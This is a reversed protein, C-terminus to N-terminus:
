EQTSPSEAKTPTTGKTDVYGQLVRGVGSMSVFIFAAAFSMVTVWIYRVVRERTFDELMRGIPFVILWLSLACLAFSLGVHGLDLEEQLLMLM